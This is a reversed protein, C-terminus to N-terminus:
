GESDSFNIKAFIKYFLTYLCCRGIKRLAELASDRAKRFGELVIQPHIKQNLLIEAQKLLEGALVCVTTTGDGM